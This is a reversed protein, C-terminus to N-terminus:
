LLKTIDYNSISNTVNNLASGLSGAATGGLGGVTSAINGIGSELANMALAQLSNNRWETYAFTIALKHVSDDAWNLDLQNMSVPYADILDVSYSLAGTVDYQNITITTVYDSKYALNYNAQPNIFNIWADFFTKQSMNDDVLFILDIDNYTTMYPYKEIPATGFKQETTALTRGPLNTSECRYTLQRSTAIYPLLTLPIPISVDFKSTRALDTKFSSKFDNINASM